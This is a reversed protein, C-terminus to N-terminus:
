LSDPALPWPIPPLLSRSRASPAAPLPPILPPAWHLTRLEQTFTTPHIDGRQFSRRPTELESDDLEEPMYHVRHDVRPASPPNFGGPYTLPSSQDSSFVRARTARNVYQSGNRVTNPHPTNTAAYDPTALFDAPTPGLSNPSFLEAAERPTQSPFPTGSESPTDMNNNPTNNSSM